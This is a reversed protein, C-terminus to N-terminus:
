RELRAIARTAATRTDEAAGFLTAAMRYWALAQERHGTREHLRAGELYTSALIPAPCGTEGRAHSIALEFQAVAGATDGQLQLLRGYRYRSVPDDPQLTLSLELSASADDLNNAELHRWGQLSLRYAETENRPPARRIRSNAREAIDYLDDSPAEAAARRYAPLAEARAGLRDHAEGLRLLALAYASYPVAPRSAVLTELQEISRDTEHLAELQKSMGLRARAEAIAAANVRGEQAKALLKRWTELTGTIDHQYGDQIEAISILFLPNAPYEQQLGRLLKLARGTDEEYWLYILHLQYDAEGQLLRGRNRARLMQALGEERDGGPLLLLFRLLRLVAPAVDAYYRYLGIGFHADDLGPELELARELAQKIRKGDRAAALKADRLVQWQVRVAHAAGMYFWAEPDEPARETWAVTTRIAREVAASFEDDLLRSDPNLQIQWWVATAALVDCAESPAPGCASRLESGIQDFRAQLIADYAHILAQEGQLSYSGTPSPQAARAGPQATFLLAVAAAACMGRM